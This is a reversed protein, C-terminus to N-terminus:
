SGGDESVVALESVVARHDSGPVDAERVALVEVRAAGPGRGDRVLVHDYLVLPASAPWTRALGRGREEHADRLGVELLRRFPRHERTSNLDGAVVVPLPTAEVDARLRALSGRWQVEFVSFAPQTHEGLVQVRTGGVEVVARPLVRGGYPTFAVESLPTRSFLGVAEAGSGWRLAEHPLDDLVGQSALAARGEVTLETVVLVDPRLARVARAAEEPTENLVYLNSTVVRLRPADRAQASVGAPQLSPLVLLLHGAVVAASLLALRRDRLPAALVLLAYAPLLLVPLAGVALVGLTGREGGGLRVLLLGLLLVALVRLLTRVTRM